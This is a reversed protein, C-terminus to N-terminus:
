KRKRSLALCEFYLDRLHYVSMDILPEYMFANVHINEPTMLNVKDLVLLNNKRKNPYEKYHKILESTQNSTILDTNPKLIKILYKEALLRCAIALVIKNELLIEDISRENAISMAQELIFPIIQKKSIKFTENKCTKIVKKYINFIQTTHIKGSKSKNHLCCTLKMYEKSKNGMTYEIINRVFPILSIFIKPDNVNKSLVKGFVDQTYQGQNLKICGHNKEYTMYLDSRPIGLRSAITRYFDFNHTLIIQYFKNNPDKILDAIYEIIAYKNKYDFSDAIDDFIILNDTKLNRRAELEFLLQLIYFARQEGKSLTKYFAEKEEFSDKDGDDEFIFNLHATSKKLIVDAQNKISIDFPVYFRNKYISIINKWTENEKNANNILELLKNSNQKYLDLLDTFESSLQFFYGYWVTKRFEEYKILKTLLTPNLEIANKFNRLKNNKSIANDIELFIRQLESDNIINEYEKDAIQKLEEKKNIKTGDKLIIYHNAEFFSNDDLAKILQDLQYTGFENQNKSRSFLMSKKILKNYIKLYEKLTVAYDNIFNKVKGNKDFYISYDINYIQTRTRAKSCIEEFVSFFDNNYSNGFVRILEKECDKCKSVEKLKSLFSNKNEDLTKHIADYEKKLNSSALFTSVKEESNLDGEADAVFICDPSITSNDVTIKCITKRNKHIRDCPTRKNAIDRFTNALSSKMTGNPAYIVITKKNGFSITEKFEKIGYCNELNFDVKKM